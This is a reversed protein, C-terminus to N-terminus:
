CILIKNYRNYRITFGKNTKKSVVDMKGTEFNPHRSQAWGNQRRKDLDKRYEEESTYEVCETEFSM